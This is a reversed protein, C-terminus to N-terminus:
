KARLPLTECWAVADHVATEIRDVDEDTPFVTADRYHVKCAANLKICSKISDYNRLGQFPGEEEEENVATKNKKEVTSSPASMQVKYYKIGSNGGNIYMDHEFGFPFLEVLATMPAMFMVNVLNAGHIGVAIAVDKLTAYQERLPKDEFTVVDFDYGARTAVKSLRQLVLKKRRTSMMRRRGHRDIFVIKRRPTEILYKGDNDDGTENNNDASDSATLVAHLRRRFAVSDRPLPPAVQQQTPLQQQKIEDKGDGGTGSENNNYNGSHVGTAAQQEDDQRQQRLVTAFPTRSGMSASAHQLTPLSSPYDHDSLFFRGRLFSPVIAQRFCVHKRKSLDVKRAWDERVPTLGLSSLLMVTTNHTLTSGGRKGRSSLIVDGLTGGIITDYPATVVNFLMRHYDNVVHNGSQTKKSTASPKNNNNITHQERGNNIDTVSVNKNTHQHHQSLNNSQMMRTTTPTGENTTSRTSTSTSASQRFRRIMDDTAVVLVQAPNRPRKTYAHANRLVHFLAMLRGTYHAINGCSRDWIQLATVGEVWHLDSGNALMWKDVDYTQETMPLWTDRTAIGASFACKSDLRDESRGLESCVLNNDNKKGDVGGGSSGGSIFSIVQETETDVCLPKFMTMQDRGVQFVQQTISRNYLKHYRWSRYYAQTEADSTTATHATQPAYFRRYDNEDFLPRTKRRNRSVSRQSSSPTKTKKKTATAEDTMRDVQEYNQHQQSSLSSPLEGGPLPDRERAAHLGVTDVSLLEYHSLSPDDEDVSDDDMSTHTANSRSKNGSLQTAHGHLVSSSSSSTGVLTHQLSPPEKALMAKRATEYEQLVEARRLMVVFDEDIVNTHQGKNSGLELVEDPSQGEEQKHKHNLEEEEKTELLALGPDEEHDENDDGDGRITKDTEEDEENETLSPFLSSIFSIMKNKSDDDKKLQDDDADHLVSTMNQQMDIEIGVSTVPTSTAAIRRKGRADM